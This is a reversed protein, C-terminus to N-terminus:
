KEETAAAEGEAPTPAAEGEAPAAAAEGEAPAAVVIEEEKRPEQVLAIVAEPDEKIEVGKGVTLDKVTITDGFQALTAISAELAHPLDAPLCRVTVELMPTVLIAALDKVAPSEGTLHVPVQAEIEEKMNVAYFDVHIPRGSAVDRSFEKFLVPIKESGMTLEVLTSEGAKMFVKNLVNEECSISLNKVGHGYVVGPVKGTQRLANAKVAIDRATAQLPVKDM